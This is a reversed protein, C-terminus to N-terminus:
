VEGRDASSKVDLLSNLDETVLILSALALFAEGFVAQRLLLPGLMCVEM